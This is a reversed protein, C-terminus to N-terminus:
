SRTPQTPSTTFGTFGNPGSVLTWPTGDTPNQLDSASHVAINDNGISTVFAVVTDGNQLNPPYEVYVPYSGLAYGELETFYGWGLWEVPPIIGELAEWTTSEDTGGASIEEVQWTIPQGNPGIVFPDLVM